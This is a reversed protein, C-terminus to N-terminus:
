STLPPRRTRESAGVIAAQQRNQRAGRDVPDRSFVPRAGFDSRLSLKSASPLRAASRTTRRPGVEALAGPRPGRLKMGVTSTGPATERTELKGCSEGPEVGEVGHRAPVSPLLLRPLARPLRRGASGSAGRRSGLLHTWARSLPRTRANTERVSLPGRVGGFPRQTEGFGSDQWSAPLSHRYM